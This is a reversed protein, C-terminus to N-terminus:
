DFGSQPEYHIATLESPLPELGNSGKGAYMM